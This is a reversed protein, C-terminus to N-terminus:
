TLDANKAGLFQLISEARGLLQWWARRAEEVLRHHLASREGGSDQPFLSQASVKIVAGLRSNATALFRHCSFLDKRPPHASHLRPATFGVRTFFQAPMTEM